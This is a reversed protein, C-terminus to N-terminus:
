SSDGHLVAGCVGCQAPGAGVRLVRQRPVLGRQGVGLVGGGGDAGGPVGCQVRHRDAGPSSGCFKYCRDEIM